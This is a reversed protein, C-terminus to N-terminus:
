WRGALSAPDVLRLWWPLAAVLFLALYAAGLWALRRLPGPRFAEPPLPRVDFSLREAAFALVAGALGDVAWHQGTAVTSWWVVASGALLWRGLGRHLRGALLASFVCDAVHASPFCNTPPDLWRTLAIGWSFLDTVPLPPRPVAVPFAIWVAASVLLMGFAGLIGRLLVRRDEVVALPALAVPVLGLYAATAAPTFPVLADLPTRLAVAAEVRPVTVAGVLAYVAFLGVLLSAGLVARSPLHDAAPVFGVFGHDCAAAAGAM